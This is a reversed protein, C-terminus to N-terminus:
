PEQFAPLHTTMLPPPAHWACALPQRGRTKCPGASLKILTTFSPFSLLSVSRQQRWWVAGGGLARPSQVGRRLSGSCQGAAGGDGARRTRAPLPLSSPDQCVALAGAAMCQMEGGGPCLLSRLRPHPAGRTSECGHAAPAGGRVAGCARGRAGGGGAARRGAGRGRTRRPVAPAATSSSLPLSHSCPISDAQQGWMCCAAAFHLELATCPAPRSRQVGGAPFRRGRHPALPPEQLRGRGRAARQLCSSPRCALPSPHADDSHTSPRRGDRIEIGPLGGQGGEGPLWATPRCAGCARWCRSPLGRWQQM